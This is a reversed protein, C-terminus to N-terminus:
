RQRKSDLEKKVYKYYVKVVIYYLGPLFRHVYYCLFLRKPLTRRPNVIDNMLEGLRKVIGEYIEKHKNEVRFYVMQNLIVMYFNFCKVYAKQLFSGKYEKVYELMCDTCTARGFDEVYFGKRNSLSGLRHYRHYFPENIYVVREAKCLALFGFLMDEGRERSTDFLVGEVMKRSIIGSSLRMSIKEKYYEELIENGSLVLKKNGNYEKRDSSGDSFEETWEFYVADANYEGILVLCTSYTHTDLWDDSDVFSIYDGTARKLAANRAASVGEHKKDILIVRDDQMELQKMITLSEDNSGDNVIIIEVEIHTQNLISSVCKELYKGTNYVPIIVSVKM